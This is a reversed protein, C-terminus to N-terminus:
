HTFDGSVMKIDAFGEVKLGELGADINEDSDHWSYSRKGFDARNLKMGTINSIIGLPIPNLVKLVTTSYIYRRNSASHEKIEQQRIVDMSVEGYSKNVEVKLEYIGTKKEPEEVRESGPRKGRESSSSSLVAQEEGEEELTMKAKKSSATALFASLCIIFQFIKIM